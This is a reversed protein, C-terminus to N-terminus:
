CPREPLPASTETASHLAPPFGNFFQAQRALYETSIGIM